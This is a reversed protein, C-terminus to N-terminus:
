VKPISNYKQRQQQQQQQQQQKRQRLLRRQALRWLHHHGGDLVSENGLASGKTFYRQTHRQARRITHIASHRTQPAHNHKYLHRSTTHHARYSLVNRPDHAVM